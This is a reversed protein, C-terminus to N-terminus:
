KAKITASLRTASWFVMAASAVAVLACLLGMLSGKSIYFIAAMLQVGSNFAFIAGGYFHAMLKPSKPICDMQNEMTSM